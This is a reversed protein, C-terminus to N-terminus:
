FETFNGLFPIQGTFMTSFDCCYTPSSNDIFYLTDNSKEQCTIPKWEAVAPPESLLTTYHDIIKRLNSIEQNLIECNTCAGPQSEQYMIRRTETSQPTKPKLAVKPTTTYKARAQSYPGSVRQILYLSDPQDRRFYRHSYIITSGDFEQKSRRRDSVRYFGYINLQRTFSTFKRTEYYQPLVKSTFGAQDKIIFGSGSREWAIIDSYTQESLILAVRVNLKATHGQPM